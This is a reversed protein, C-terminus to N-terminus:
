PQLMRLRWAAGEKIFQERRHVRNVEFKLFEVSYPNVTFGGWYNPRSVRRDIAKLASAFHDEMTSKSSWAESQDFCTSAIQAELSRDDWYNDALEDSIRSANGVVRIQYGIHDWWVALSIKPNSALNKAKASDYSTCFTFGQISVEKLDVFRSEPYGSGNVTSICVASEQNLPSNEKALNWIQYFKSVLQEDM